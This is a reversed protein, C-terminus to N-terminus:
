EDNRHLYRLLLIAVVLLVVGLGIILMGIAPGASSLTSPFVHTGKSRHHRADTGAAPL